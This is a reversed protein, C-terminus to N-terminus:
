IFNWLGKFTERFNQAMTADCIEVLYPREKDTAIMIIYDGLIWTTATFSERKQWSKIERREYKGKLRKEVQSENSLLKLCLNKPAKKWFWDIWDSYKEVFSHDQFGWWIGDSAMISDNWAATRSYLYEELSKEEIFRIKPVPYSDGSKMLSLENSLEEIVRAKAKYEDEEKKILSKLELASAPVLQLSKEGLDEILLGKAVLSKCINYVTPRPLKTQKALAAPSVKPYKLATQYVQAEKANLGLEFLLAKNM